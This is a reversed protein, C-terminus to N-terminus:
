LRRLLATFALRTTLCPLTMTLQRLSGSSQANMSHIWHRVQSQRPVKFVMCEEYITTAGKHTGDGGIIYMQRVNNKRLMEAMEIHSPNGRDSVLFSGGNLHIDQVVDPTLEIWNEPSMVGKYGGIIGYVKQVGYLHLMMTVERIVSNLGPCLGGCNVIAANVQSPEWYTNERQGAKLFQFFENGSRDNPGSRRTSTTFSQSSWDKGVFSMDPHVKKLPNQLQKDRGPFTDSLHAVEFRRVEDEPGNLIDTWELTRAESLANEEDRSKKVRFM